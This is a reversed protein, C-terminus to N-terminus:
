CKGRKWADGFYVWLYRGLWGCTFGVGFGVWCAYTVAQEVTM